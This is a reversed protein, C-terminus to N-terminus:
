PSPKQRGVSELWLDFPDTGRADGNERDFDWRLPNTLIYERIRALDAECRVVHEYYDTQWLRRGVSALARNVEIAAISKFARVVDGLRPGRESDATVARLWVVGHIHNPMIVFADLQVSPFRTPLSHWVREVITGARTPQIAGSEVKALLPDRNLTCSTIFYAGPRSYDYHELRLSRRLPHAQFPPM